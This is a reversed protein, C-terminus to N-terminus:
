RDHKQAGVFEMTSFDSPSTGVTRPPATWCEAPSRADPRLDLEIAGNSDVRVGRRVAVVRSADAGEGETAQVEVRAVVFEGDGTLTKSLAPEVVYRVRADRAELVWGSGERRLTGLLWKSFVAGNLHSARLDVLSLLLTRRVREEPSLDRESRACLLRAEASVLEIVEAVSDSPRVHWRSEGLEEAVFQWGQESRLMRCRVPRRLVISRVGAADISRADWGKTLGECLARFEEHARAAEYATPVYEGLLEIAEFPRKLEVLRRATRGFLLADRMPHDPVLRSAQELYARARGLDDALAWARVTRSCFLANEPWDRLALEYGEATQRITETAPRAHARNYHLYHRVYSRLRPSLDPRSLLRGYLEAAGDFDGRESRDRAHDVFLELGYKAYRFANDFEELKLYHRHAGHLALGMLAASEDEAVAASALATAVRRLAQGCELAPITRGHLDLWLDDAIVLGARETWLGLAAGWEFSDREFGEIRECLARTLPRAHVALAALMGRVNDPLSSWVAERLADEGYATMPLDDRINQSTGEVVERTLAWRYLRPDSGESWPVSSPRVEGNALQVPPESTPRVVHTRWGTPQWPNSCTVLMAHSAIWDAFQRVLPALAGRLNDREAFSLRDLRDVVIPRAAAAERLRELVVSFRHPERQADRLAGDVARQADADLGSALELVTESVQDLASPVTAVLPRDLRRVIAALLRSQDITPGFQVAM